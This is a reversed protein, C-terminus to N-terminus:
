ARRTPADTTVDLDKVDEPPIGAGDVERRADRLADQLDPYPVMEDDLDDLLSQARLRFRKMTAADRRKLAIRYAVLVARLQLEIHRRDM